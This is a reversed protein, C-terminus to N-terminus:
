SLKKEVYGATKIAEDMYTGYSSASIFEGYVLPPVPSYQYVSDDLFEVELIEKVPEYGVSKITRSKVPTRDM